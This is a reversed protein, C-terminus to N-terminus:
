AAIAEQQTGVFMMKFLMAKDREKFTISLGARYHTAGAPKFTTRRFITQGGHKEAWKRAPLKKLKVCANEALHRKMRQLHREFHHIMGTTEQEGFVCVMGESLTIRFRQDNKPDQEIAVYDYISM